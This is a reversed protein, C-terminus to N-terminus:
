VGLHIFPVWRLFSLKGGSGERLNRVALHLAEAARTPDPPSTKFLHEYVDAAVESADNDRISWMTAIVSRYGALLMGAALHISEEELTKDGTATQCASLFAFDAHPLSLKTIRELTLRSSGALLLASNTPTDLDQIGHCAFHVWGSNMMGEEVRALTAEDEVLSCVSMKGRACRQIRTIEDKTGPIESQGVASPAVALLQFVQDTRSTSRFGQMLAALSPTYSSIVFDSLKSGFTDNDGYLGAAHIPLLTLPGTPCWWIRQLNDKTPTTIALADLVPWVLRVWLESLIEAFDDELGAAYGEGHSKFRRSNLQGHSLSMLLTELSHTLTEVHAPTLQPFPIHIVENTLGPLLGLGDCSFKSVYLVVVPGVQAVSSLESITKPLLFQEFGDLERIKSLLVERKHADVNAQQGALKLFQQKRPFPPRDQDRTSGELQASLQSLENALEPYEQGLAKVQTRLNFFRGRCQELWEVAKEPHGFSIATAVEDKVKLGARMIQHPHYYDSLGLSIAEPLLDLAVSDAQLHSPHKM